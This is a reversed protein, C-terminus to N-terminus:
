GPRGTAKIEQLRRYAEADFGAATDVVSEAFNLYSRESTWQAMAERLGAQHARVAQAANVDMPVGVFGLAFAGDVTALAGADEPAEALAGGLQRMEVALLPSNSGPGAAEVLAAVTEPELADLMVSDAIGPTPQEPDGHIRSLAAPPVVGIGDLVPTAVSLMPELAERGEDESGLFVATLAMVSNGRLPEPVEPFPPLNLFRISSTLEEPATATWERFAELLDASAEVPWAVMGGYIAPM